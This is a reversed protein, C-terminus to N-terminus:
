FLRKARERHSRMFILDYRLVLEHTGSNWNTVRNKIGWDFSYGLVLHDYLRLGAILGLADHHRYTIGMSFKDYFHVSGSVCVDLQDGQRLRVVASTVLDVDINLPIAGGTIFYYNRETLAQRAGAYLRNTFPNTRLLKPISVGAYFHEKRFYMGFGFNPLWHSQIDSAFLPDSPDDIILETLPVNFVSVGAKLGFSLTSKHSTKITYAVDGEVSTIKEPGVRENNVTLGLGMPYDETPTNISLSQFSPPKDFLMTWQSRNLSTITFAERGGVYGPNIAQSNATFQTFMVDRGRQAYGTFCCTSFLSLLALIVTNTRRTKM